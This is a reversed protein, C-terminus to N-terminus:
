HPAPPWQPSPPPASRWGLRPAAARVARVPWRGDLYDQAQEVTPRWEDLPDVGLTDLEYREQIGDLRQHEVFERWRM